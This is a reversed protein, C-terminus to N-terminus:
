YSGGTALQVAMLSGDAGVVVFKNVDDATFKDVKDLRDEMENHKAIMTGAFNADNDIAAGLERLTDLAEDVGKGVLADLKTKLYSKNVVTNDASNETCNAKVEGNTTRQVITGNSVNSDISLGGVYGGPDQYVIKRGSTTNKYKLVNSADWEDQVKGDVKVASKGAVATAVSQIYAIVTEETVGEPLKEGVFKKLKGLAEANANELAVLIENAQNIVEKLYDAVRIAPGCLAEKIANANYGQASPRDPLNVISSKIDNDSIEIDIAKNVEESM